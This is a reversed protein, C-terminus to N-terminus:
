KEGKNLKLMKKFEYIIRPIIKQEDPRRVDKEFLEMDVSSVYVAYPPGYPSPENLAAGSIFYKNANLDFVHWTDDIKVFSLIATEVGNGPTSYCWFADYGAYSAVTTFVDAKQDGSGYGRVVINWIHDDVSKLWVPQKQINEITWTYIAQIKQRDSNKGSIIMGATDKYQFDRYLFGCVKAYLPISKAKVVGDVGQLTTLPINLFFVVCATIFALLIIKKLM